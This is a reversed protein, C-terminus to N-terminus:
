QATGSIKLLVTRTNANFKPSSNILKQTYKALDEVSGFFYLCTAPDLLWWDGTTPSKGIAVHHGFGGLTTPLFQLSWREGPALQQSPLDTKLTALTKNDWVVTETCGAWLVWDVAQKVGLDKASEINEQRKKIETTDLNTALVKILRKTDQLVWSAVADCETVFSHPIDNKSKPECM